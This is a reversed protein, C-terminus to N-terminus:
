WRAASPTQGARRHAPCECVSPGDMDVVLRMCRDLRDGMCGRDPNDPTEHDGYQILVHKRIVLAARTAYTHVSPTGRKRQVLQDHDWLAMVTKMM